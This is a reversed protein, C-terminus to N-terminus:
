LMEKELAIAAPFLIDNELNIHISLDNQFEILEKYFLKFISSADDPIFYNNSLDRMKLLGEGAYEHEEEMMKIPNKITGFYPAETEAGSKKLTVLQKIYPFLIQEEKLMHQKLDKYLVSFAKVIEKIEPYKEGYVKSVKSGHSSIPKIMRKVHLHHNNLIYDVLFDLDWEKFHGHMYSNMKMKNKM